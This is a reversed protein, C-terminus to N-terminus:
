KKIKIYFKSQHENDGTPHQRKRPLKNHFHSTFEIKEMGLIKYIQKFAFLRLAL